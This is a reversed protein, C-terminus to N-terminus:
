IVGLAVVHGNNLETRWRTLGVRMVKGVGSFQYSVTKETRSVVHRNIAAPNIRVVDGPQPDIRPDRCYVSSTVPM